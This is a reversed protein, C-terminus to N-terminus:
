AIRSYFIHLFYFFIWGAMPWLGLCMYNKQFHWVQVFMSIKQTELDINM